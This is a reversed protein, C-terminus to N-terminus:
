KRPEIKVIPYKLTQWKRSLCIHLVGGVKMSRLEVRKGKWMWGQFPGCDAVIGRNPQDPEISRIDFWLFDQGGDAFYVRCVDSM